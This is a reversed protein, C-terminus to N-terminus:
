LYLPTVGNSSHCRLMYLPLNFLKLRLLPIGNMQFVLRSFEPKGTDLQLKVVGPFKQERKWGKVFIYIIFSHM